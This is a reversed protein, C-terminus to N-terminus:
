KTRKQITKIAEAAERRLFFDDGAVHQQLAPISAPTGLDKLLRITDSLV